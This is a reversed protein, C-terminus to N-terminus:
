TTLRSTVLRKAALVGAIPLIVAAAIMWMPHPFM